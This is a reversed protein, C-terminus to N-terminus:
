ALVAANPVTGAPDASPKPAAEQAWAEQTLAGTAFAASGGALRALFERRSSQVSPSKRSM